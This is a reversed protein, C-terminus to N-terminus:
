PMIRVELKRAQYIINRALGDASLITSVKQNSLTLSNPKKIRKRRLKKALVIIKIKSWNEERLLRLIQSSFVIKIM